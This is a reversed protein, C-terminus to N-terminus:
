ASVVERLRHEEAKLRKNEREELEYVREALNAVMERLDRETKAGRASSAKRRPIRRPRLPQDEWTQADNRDTGARRGQRKLTDDEIMLKPFEGNPTKWKDPGSEADAYVIKGAIRAYDETGDSLLVPGYRCLKRGRYQTGCVANADHLGQQYDDQGWDNQAAAKGVVDIESFVGGHQKPPKEALLDVATSCQRYLSEQSEQSEM